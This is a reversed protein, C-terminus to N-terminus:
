WHMVRIKGSTHGRHESSCAGVIGHIRLAAIPLLCIMHSLTGTHELPLKFLKMLKCAVQHQDNSFIVSSSCPHVVNFRISTAICQSHHRLIGKDECEKTRGQATQFVEFLGHIHVHQAAASHHTLREADCETNSLIGHEACPAKADSHLALISKTCSIISKLRGKPMNPVCTQCYAKVIKHQHSGPFNCFSHWWMTVKFYDNCCNRM